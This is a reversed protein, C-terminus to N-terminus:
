HMLIDWWFIRGQSKLRGLLAFLGHQRNSELGYATVPIIRKVAFSKWEMGKRLLRRKEKGEKIKLEKGWGEKGEGGDRAKGNGYGMWERGEWYGMKLLKYISM